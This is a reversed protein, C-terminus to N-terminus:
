EMTRAIKKVYEYLGLLMAVERMELFDDALLEANGVGRAVLFAM